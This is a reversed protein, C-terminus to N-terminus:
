ENNEELAAQLRAYVEPLAQELNLSKMDPGTWIHLSRASAVQNGRFWASYGLEVKKPAYSLLFTRITVQGPFTVPSSYRLDMEVMTPNIGLPQMDLYSFGVARFFDLRGEEYWLPYVAHHVIGMPDSDPFRVNVTIESIM